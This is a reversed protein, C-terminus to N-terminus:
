VCNLQANAIMYFLKSSFRVRRVVSEEHQEGTETLIHGRATYYELFRAVGDSTYSRGEVILLERLQDDKLPVRCTRFAEESMDLLKSHHTHM